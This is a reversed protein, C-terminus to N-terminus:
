GWEEMWVIKHVQEMGCITDVMVSGVLDLEASLGSEAALVVSVLSALALLIGSTDGTSGLPSAALRAEDLDLPLLWAFWLSASGAEAGGVFNFATGVFPLPASTALLSTAFSALSPPLGGDGASSALPPGEGEAPPLSRLASADDPLRGIVVRPARTVWSAEAGEVELLTSM